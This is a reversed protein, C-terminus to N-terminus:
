ILWAKLEKNFQCMVSQPANKGRVRIVKEYRYDTHDDDKLTQLYNMGKETEQFGYWEAGTIFRGNGCECDKNYYLRGGLCGDLNGEGDDICIGKLEEISKLQCIDVQLLNYEFDVFWFPASTVIEKM